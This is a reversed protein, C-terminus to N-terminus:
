NKHHSMQFKCEDSVNLIIQNISPLWENQCLISDKHQNKQMERIVHSASCIKIFEKVMQVEESKIKVKTAWKKTSHKLKPLYM